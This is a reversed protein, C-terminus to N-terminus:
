HVADHAGPEPIAPSTGPPPGGDTLYHPTTIIILALHTNAANATRPAVNPLAARALPDPWPLAATVGGAAKDVRSTDVQNRM